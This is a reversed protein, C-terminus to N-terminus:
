EFEKLEAEIQALRIKAAKRMKASKGFWGKNNSVLWEQHKKDNLLQQYKLQKANENATQQSKTSQPLPQDLIGKTVAGESNKLLEELRKNQAAIRERAAQKAKFLIGELDTKETRADNMRGGSFAVDWIQQPSVQWVWPLIDYTDMSLARDSTYMRIKVIAQGIQCQLLNYEDQEDETADVIRIELLGAKQVSSFDGCNEDFAKLERLENERLEDIHNLLLLRLQSLEAETYLFKNSLIAYQVAQEKNYWEDLVSFLKLSVRKAKQSMPAASFADLHKCFEASNNLLPLISAREALIEEKKYLPFVDEYTEWFETESRDSHGAIKENHLIFFLFTIDYPQKGIRIIEQRNQEEALEREAEIQEQVKFFDSAKNTTCEIKNLTEELESLAGTLESFKLSADEEDAENNKHCINYESRETNAKCDIDPYFDTKVTITLLPNRARTGRQSLPVTQAVEASFSVSKDDMHSAMAAARSSPIYGLMEGMLSYVAIANTDYINDPERRLVVSEGVSLNEHAVARGDKGTGAVEVQFEPSFSDFISESFLSTYEPLGFSHFDEELDLEYTMPGDEFKFSDSCALSLVCWAYLIDSVIGNLPKERDTRNQLLYRHLKEMMGSIADLDHRLALLEGCYKTDAYQCARKWRPDDASIPLFATNGDPIGCLAPFRHDDTYNICNQEEVFNCIQLLTEIDLDECSILHKEAYFQASWALSRLASLYRASKIYCNQIEVLRDSDSSFVDEAVQFVKAYEWAIEAGHYSDALIGVNCKTISYDVGSNEFMLGAINNSQASLMEKSPRMSDIEDAISCRTKSATTTNTLSKRATGCAEITSLWEVVRKKLETKTATYHLFIQMQYFHTRTIINAVYVYLPGEKFHHEERFYYKVCIDATNKVSYIRGETNSFTQIIGTIQQVIEPDTLKANGPLIEKGSLASLNETASFPEEYTGTNDDSMIVVARHGGIETPATSAVFGKPLLISWQNEVNVIDANEFNLATMEKVQPVVNEPNLDAIAEPPLDIEDAIVGIAKWLINRYQKPSTMLNRFLQIFAPHNEEDMRSAYLEILQGHIPELVEILLHVLEMNLQMNKQVYPDLMAEFLQNLEEDTLQEAIINVNGTFALFTGYPIINDVVHQVVKQEMEGSANRNETEM